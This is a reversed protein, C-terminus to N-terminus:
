SHITSSHFFTKLCEGVDHPGLGKFPATYYAQMESHSHDGARDDRTQRKPFFVIFSLLEYEICRGLCLLAM